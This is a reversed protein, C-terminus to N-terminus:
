VQNHQKRQSRTQMNSTSKCLPPKNLTKSYMKSNTKNHVKCFNTNDYVKNSCPFGNCNFATCKYNYCGNEIKIKNKLWEKSADDFDIIVEYKHQRTHM